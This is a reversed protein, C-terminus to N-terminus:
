NEEQMNIYVQVAPTIDGPFKWTRISQVSVSAGNLIDQIQNNTALEELGEAIGGSNDFIGVIDESLIYM